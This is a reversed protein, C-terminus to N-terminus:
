YKTRNGLGRCRADPKQAEERRLENRCIQSENPEDVRRGQSIEHTRQFSLVPCFCYIGHIELM